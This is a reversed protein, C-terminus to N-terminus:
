PAPCSNNFTIRSNFISSLASESATLSETAPTNINTDVSIALEDQVVNAADVSQSAMGGGFNPSAVLVAHGEELAAKAETYFVSIEELADDNLQLEMEIQQFAAELETPSAM